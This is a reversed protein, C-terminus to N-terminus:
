SRVRRRTVVPEGALHDHNGSASQRLACAAHDIDADSDDYPNHGDYHTDNDDYLDNDRHTHDHHNQCTGHHLHLEGRGINHDVDDNTRDNRDSHEAANGNNRLSIRATFFQM